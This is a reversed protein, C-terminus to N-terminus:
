NADLNRPRHLNNQYNDQTEGNYSWACDFRWNRPNCFFQLKSVGNQIALFISQVELARLFSRYSDFSSAFIVLSVRRKAVDDWFHM